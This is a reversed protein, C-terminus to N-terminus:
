APLSAAAPTVAAKSSRRAVRVIAAALSDLLVAAHQRGDRALHRIM